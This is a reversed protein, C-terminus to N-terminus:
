HPPLAYATLRGSNDVVILQGNVAIPSQWHLPGITGRSSAQTSSWVEQGTTPTLAHIALNGQVFVLGGAVFPSSSTITNSYALTLPSKGAASTIVKYASFGCGKAVFVWTTGQADVWM